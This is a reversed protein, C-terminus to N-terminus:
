LLEGQRSLIVVFFLIVRTVGVRSKLWTFQDSIRNKVWVRFACILLEGVCGKTENVSKPNVGCKNGISMASSTWSRLFAKKARLFSLESCRYRQMRVLSEDTHLDGSINVRKFEAVVSNLRAEVAAM